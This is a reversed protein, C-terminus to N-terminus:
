RKPPGYSPDEVTGGGNPLAARFQGDIHLTDDLHAQAGRDDRGM